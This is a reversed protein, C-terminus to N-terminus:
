MCVPLMYTGSYSLANKNEHKRECVRKRQHQAGCIDRMIVKGVGQSVVEATM